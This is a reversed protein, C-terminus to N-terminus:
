LKRRLVKRKIDPWFEAGINGLVDFGLSISGQEFGLGPTNLRAPYWLNSLFAAGYDSGLRWTALTEGGADTRTLITGRVAHGTRRWFGTVDSRYYRPDQHLSTDLGFALAGHIGAWAATSAYREGYAAGGQGWEKPSNVEQLFGAYAAMGVLAWPGYARKAHYQLKGKWGLPDQTQVIMASTQAIAATPIAALLVLLLVRGADRSSRRLTLLRKV